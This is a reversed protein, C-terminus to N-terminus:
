FAQWWIAKLVCIAAAPGFLDVSDPNWRSRIWPLLAFHDISSLSEIDFM